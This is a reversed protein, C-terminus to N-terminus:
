ESRIRCSLPGAGWNESPLDNAPKEGCPGHSTLRSSSSSGASRAMEHVMLATDAWSAFYRLRIDPDPPTRTYTLHAILFEQGGDLWYLIEDQRTFAAIAEVSRRALAHDSGVEVLLRRVLGEGQEGEKYGTGRLDWWPEPFIFEDYTAPM